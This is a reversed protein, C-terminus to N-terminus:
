LGFSFIGIDGITGAFSENQKAGFSQAADEILYLNHRHSIKKIQNMKCMRGHLHTVLIAASESTINAEILDPNINCTDQEIDIFIPKGGALIVM